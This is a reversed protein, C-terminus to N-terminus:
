SITSLVTINYQICLRQMLMEDNEATVKDDLYVGPVNGFIWEMLRQWRAPARGVVFM